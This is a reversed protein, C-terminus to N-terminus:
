QRARRDANQFYFANYLKGAARRRARPCEEEVDVPEELRREEPIQVENSLAKSGLPGQRPTPNPTSVPKMQRKDSEEKLCVETM